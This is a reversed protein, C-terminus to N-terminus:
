CPYFFINVFCSLCICYSLIYSLCLIYQKMKESLSGLGRRTMGIFTGIEVRLTGIDVRDMRDWAVDIRGLCFIIGLLSTIGDEWHRSTGFNWIRCGYVGVCSLALSGDWGVLVGFCRKAIMVGHTKSTVAARVVRDNLCICLGSM